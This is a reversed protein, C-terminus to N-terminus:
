MNEQHFATYTCVYLWAQCRTSTSSATLVRRCISKLLSFSHGCVYEPQPALHANWNGSIPGSHHHPYPALFSRQQCSYLIHCGSHLTQHNWMINFYFYRIVWRHWRQTYIGLLFSFMGPSLFKYM